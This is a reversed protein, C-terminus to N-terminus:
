LDFRGTEVVRQIYNRLALDLRVAVGAKLNDGSVADRAEAHNREADEFLGAPRAARELLTTVEERLAQRLEDFVDDQRLGIRLSQMCWTALYLAMDRRSRTGGDKRSTLAQWTQLLDAAGQAMSKTDADALVTKMLHDLATKLANGSAPEVTGEKPPKIGLEKLSGTMRRYDVEHSQPLTDISWLLGALDSIATKVEDKRMAELVTLAGLLNVACDLGNDRTMAVPLPTENVLALYLGAANFAARALGPQKARAGAARSLNASTNFLSATVNDLPHGLWMRSPAACATIVVPYLGAARAPGEASENIGPGGRWALPINAMAAIAEAWGGKPMEVGFLAEALKKKSEAQKGDQEPETIEEADKILRAAVALRMSAQAEDSRDLEALISARSNADALVLDPWDDQRRHWNLGLEDLLRAYIGCAEAQSKEDKQERLLDALQGRTKYYGTQRQRQTVLLAEATVLLDVVHRSLRGSRTQLCALLADVQNEPTADEEILRTLTPALVRELLALWAPLDDALKKARASLNGLLIPGRDSSPMDFEPLSDDAGFIEDALEGQGQSLWRSFNELHNSFDADQPNLGAITELFGLAFSNGKFDQPGRSALEENLMSKEKGLKDPQEVQTQKIEGDQGSIKDLM